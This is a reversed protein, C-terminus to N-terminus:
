PGYTVGRVLFDQIVAFIGPVAQGDQWAPEFRWQHVAKVAAEELKQEHPARFASTPIVLTEMVNGTEDVLVVIPIRTGFFMSPVGAPFRAKKRKIPRAPSGEPGPSLKRYTELLRPVADLRRLATRVYMDVDDQSDPSPWFEVYRRAAQHARDLLGSRMLVRALHGQYRRSARGEEKAIELIERAAERHNLLYMEDSVDCIAGLWMETDNRPIRRALDPVQDSRGIGGLIKSLPLFPETSTPDAAIWAEYVAMSDARTASYSSALARGRLCHVDRPFRELEKGYHAFAAQFHKAARVPPLFDDSAQIIERGRAFELDGLGAHLGALTGDLKKAARLEKEAKDLEGLTVLASGALLHAEADDPQADLIRRAEKLAGRADGAHLRSRVNESTQPTESASAASVAVVALTDALLALAIFCARM